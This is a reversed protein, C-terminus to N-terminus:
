HVSSMRLCFSMVFASQSCMLASSSPFLVRVVSFRSPFLISLGPQATMASPMWPLVVSVVSIRRPLPGKPSPHMSAQSAARLSLTVM